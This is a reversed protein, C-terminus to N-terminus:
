AIAQMAMAQTAGAADGGAELQGLVGDLVAAVHRHGAEDCLDGDCLSDDPPTVSVLPRLEGPSLDLSLEADRPYFLHFPWQSQQLVVAVHLRDTDLM